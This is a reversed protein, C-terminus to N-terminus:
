NKADATLTEYVSLANPKALQEFVPRDAYESQDVQQAAHADGGEDIVAQVKEVLDAFYDYTRAKLTPLDSPTGHGPIVTVDEPVTEMMREFSAMWELVNSGHLLGPLRENFGLDGTFLLNRSPVYVGTMSPTHGGGFNHLEVTEGGGVDIVKKDEFTTFHETVDRASDTIAKGRATAYRAKDEPFSREWNENALRQSYLNKVGVDWWYSSGLYAHGQNNEVALWKVPKDTLRKIQQHFSYAVAPNPGANYVFVGDDFMVATLNNNLGFNERTGWIFSGVVTYVGEQVKQAKPIPLEPGLYGQQKMVSAVEEAYTAYWDAQAEQAYTKASQVFPDESAAANQGWALLPFMLAPLTLLRAQRM